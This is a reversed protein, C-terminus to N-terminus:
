FSNKGGRRVGVSQSLKNSRLYRFYSLNGCLKLFRGRIHGVERDVELCGACVEIMGNLAGCCLM